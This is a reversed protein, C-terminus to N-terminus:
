KSIKRPDMVWAKSETSAVVAAALGLSNTLVDNRHDQALAGVIANTRSHILFATLM